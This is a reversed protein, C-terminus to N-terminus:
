ENQKLWDKWAEKAMAVACLNRRKHAMIYRRVERLLDEAEQNNEGDALTRLDDLLNSCTQCISKEGMYEMPYGSYGKCLACTISTMM